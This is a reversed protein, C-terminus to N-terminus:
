RLAKLREGRREAWVVLDDELRRRVGPRDDLDEFTMAPRTTTDFGSRVRAIASALTFVSV